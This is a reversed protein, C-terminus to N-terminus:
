VNKVEYIDLIRMFDARDFMPLEDLKIKKDKADFLKIMNTFATYKGYKMAIPLVKSYKLKNKLYFTMALHLTRPDDVEFLSHMFIEETTLKRKPLTCLASIVYVTVGFNKYAYMGTQTGDLLEEKDVMFLIEDNFKWKVIGTINSYNRYSSLFDYLGHWSKTNLKHLKKKKIIVGRDQLKKNYTLIMPISVKCLKSAENLTIWDDCIACLFQLRSDALIEEFNIAQNSYMLIRLFRAHSTNSVGIKLRAGTLGYSKKRELFGEYELEQVIESIRNNSKKLVKAIMYITSAGHTAEKFVQLMQKSLRM